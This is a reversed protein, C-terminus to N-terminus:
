TTFGRSRLRTDYSTVNPDAGHELLWRMGLVAADTGPEGERHGALFYLPTNHHEANRGSLDAGHALLLALCERRNLQAAHYVSEGDNPDAGALLLEEVQAVDNAMCAHYLPSLTPETEGADM